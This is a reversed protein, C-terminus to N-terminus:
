PKARGSGKRLQRIRQAEESFVSTELKGDVTNIMTEAVIEGMQAYQRELRDRAQELDEGIAEILRERKPPSIQGRPRRREVVRACARVAQDFAYPNATWPDLTGTAAFAAHKGTSDMAHGIELLLAALHRGFTLALTETLLDQIDFSHELRRVTEANLSEGRLKAAKELRARLPERMRVKLQVLDTPERKETM